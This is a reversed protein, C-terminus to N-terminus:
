RNKQTEKIMSQALEYFMIEVNQGTKASTHYIPITPFQNPIQLQQLLLTPLQEEVLDIKNVVISLTLNKPNISCALDIHLPINAITDQRSLDAVIIVGQASKLYHPSIKQFQTKGEIDWILLQVTQSEQKEDPSLIMVSKRSITVGITSLYQESFQHQVFRRVLSTKGVGFDGVLCIKKAIM